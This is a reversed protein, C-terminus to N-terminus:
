FLLQRRGSFPKISVQCIVALFPATIPGCWQGLQLHLAQIKVLPVHAMQLCIGPAERQSCRMRQSWAQYHKSLKGFCNRGLIPPFLAMCNFVSQFIKGSHLFTKINLVYTITSVASQIVINEVTWFGVVSVFHLNAQM